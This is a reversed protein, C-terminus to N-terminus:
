FALLISYVAFLCAFVALEIDMLIKTIDSLLKVTNASHGVMIAFVFAVVLSIVFATYNGKIPLIEKLAEIILKQAPQTKKFENVTTFYIDKM